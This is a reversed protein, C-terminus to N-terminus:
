LPHLTNWKCKQLHIPFNMCNYPHATKIFSYFCLPKCMLILKNFYLLSKCISHKLAVLLTLLTVKSVKFHQMQILRKISLYLNKSMQIRNYWFSNGQTKQNSWHATLLGAIGSNSNTGAIHYTLPCQPSCIFTHRNRGM